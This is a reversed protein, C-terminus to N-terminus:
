SNQNILYNAKESGNTKSRLIQSILLTVTQTAMEQQNIYIKLLEKEHPVKKLIFTASYLKNLRKHDLKPEKM